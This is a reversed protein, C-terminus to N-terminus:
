STKRMESRTQHQLHVLDKWRIRTSADCEINTNYRSEMKMFMWWRCVCLLCIDTVTALFFHFAFWYLFSAFLRECSKNYRVFNFCDVIQMCINTNIQCTAHWQLNHRKLADSTHKATTITSYLIPKAKIENSVIMLLDFRSKAHSCPLSPLLFVSRWLYM